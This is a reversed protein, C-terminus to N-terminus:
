AGFTIEVAPRVVVVHEEGAFGDLTAHTHAVLEAASRSGDDETTHADAALIVDYGTAVASRCTTAVCFQTHIGTVVVRGVGLRDLEAQLSTGAFADSVPKRVILEGAAPPLLAPHFQWGASGVWAVKEAGGDHQIYVVPAGAARARGILDNIAAITEDRRHATELYETQADIVLLATTTTAGSNAPAPTPAPTPTTTSAPM